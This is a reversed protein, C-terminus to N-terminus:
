SPVLLRFPESGVVLEFPTVGRLDGDVQFPVPTESRVFVRKGRHLGARKSPFRGFTGHVAHRMLGLRSGAEFTYVEFLGDDFVRDRSLVDYGGYHVINSVLVLAFEGAVPAGDIEVTLRPNRWSAFARMAALTWDLKTIPGKRRKELEHVVDADFGIGCVLFSLHTENVRALDIAQTKRDRLMSVFGNVDHPLKLDLSLVNATGMPLVGVDIDRRPLGSLVESLTGDGGVAVVVDVERGIAAARERGDGRARTLHLEAAFGAQKLAKELERATREGRGRGAIPNAIVLVHQKNSGPSM